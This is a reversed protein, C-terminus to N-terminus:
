GSIKEVGFSEQYKQGDEYKLGLREQYKQGDGYKLRMVVQHIGLSLKLPLAVGTFVYRLLSLYNV